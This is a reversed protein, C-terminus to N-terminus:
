RRVEEDQALVRLFRERARAFEAALPASLVAPCNPQWEHDLRRKETDAKFIVALGDALRYPWSTYIPM